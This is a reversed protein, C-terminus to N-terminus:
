DKRTSEHGKESAMDIYKGDIKFDFPEVEVGNDFNSVWESIKPTLRYSFTCDDESRDGWHYASWMGVTVKKNFLDELAREMPCRSCDERAKKIHQDTISGRM